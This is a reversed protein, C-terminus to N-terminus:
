TSYLESVLSLGSFFATLCCRVKLWQFLGQLNLGNKFCTSAAELALIEQEPVKEYSISIPVIVNQGKSDDLSRLFGTKPTLFRRDRSRTGELFVEFTSPGQMKISAIRSALEPDAIGRGRRLYFAGLLRALCGVLPLSEFNDAAAISPVDVHLEPIAFSLFSLIIFDLFSRHTPALVVHICCDPSNGDDDRSRGNTQANMRAKFIPEFSTLDVTLAQCTSNLIRYCIWGGIRLVCSGRPQTLSLWISSSDSHQAGALLFCSLSPSAQKNKGATNKTSATLKTVFHHAAVSCSFAYRDANMGKHATLDSQFYFTDNMYPFFLLPLDVFLTLKEVKRELNAWGLWKCMLIFAQLPLKSCYYHVSEYKEQTLNLHPVVKSTVWLGIYATSRSFHGMVSGVQLIAGCYDLWTFMTNLSSSSSWAATHIRCHTTGTSQDSPESSSRSCSQFLSQASSSRSLREFSEDSSSVLEASDDVANTASFEGEFAKALVYRSLVDVPICPVPSSGFCWLNWQYSLYLCGAAVITSPKQGAWGEYPTELAPGVISPRLITTPVGWKSNKSRQVLLHECVCKTFAYTNHFRLDSMARLAYFQSGLMSEYLKFPDYPELSFLEEPLPADKSGSLAGHVFATSLHVFHPPASSVRSNENEKFAEGLRRTLEQMVLASSINARAADDLEQTFSVAAASHIVHTIVKTRDPLSLLHELEEQSINANPKTVDGEMVYVLDQREEETLFAFMDENLLEDIRERASKSRKSRCVVYVGGLLNLSKRHLLLDRLLLSGVFGTAGTLIACGYFDSDLLRPAVPLKLSAMANIVGVNSDCNKTPRGQNPSIRRAKDNDLMSNFRAFGTSSQLYLSGCLWQLGYGLCVLFLLGTCLLRLAHPLFVIIVWKVFLLCNGTTYLVLFLVPLWAVATTVIDKGRSQSRTGNSTAEEKRVAVLGHRVKQALDTCQQRTLPQSAVPLYLVRKMFDHTYQPITTTTGATPHVCQLQSTGSAVDWGQHLLYEQLQMKIEPEVQIPYLWYSSTSISTSAVSVKSNAPENSHQVLVGPVQQQLIQNMERCQQIRQQVKRATQKSQRLRRHLLQLLPLCPRKRISQILAMDMKNNNNDHRVVISRVNRTIVRDLFAYGDWSLCIHVFCGYLFPSHSFIKILMSQVVKNWFYEGITQRAYHHQQLRRMTSAAATASTTATTSSAAAAPPASLPTSTATTVADNQFHDRLIAIGGGLATATKILGFSLFTVDAYPSGLSDPIGRYCEAADEWIEVGGDNNNKNNDNHTQVLRRLQKMELNTASTTGFPHVVLIAVTRATMAAQVASVLDRPNDKSENRIDTESTHPPTSSGTICTTTDVPVVVLGHYELIHIMGPITIPPVVIVENGQIGHRPNNHKSNNTTTTKSSPPPCRKHMLYLDLLSRVSYGVVVEPTSSSTSDKTTVTAKENTDGDYDDHLCHNARQLEETWLDQIATAMQIHNQQHQRGIPLVAVLCKQFAFWWDSWSLDLSGRTVVPRIQPLSSRIWYWLMTLWYIWGTTATHDHHESKNNNDAAAANSTNSCQAAYTTANSIGTSVRPTEHNTNSNDKGGKPHEQEEGSLEKDDDNNSREKNNDLQTQEERQALEQQGLFERWWRDCTSDLSAALQVYDMMAVELKEATGYTKSM